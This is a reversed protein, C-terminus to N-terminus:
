RPVGRRRRFIGWTDWPGIPRRRGPVRRDSSFIWGVDVRPVECPVEGPNRFHGRVPIERALGDEGMRRTDPRGPRIEPPWASPINRRGGHSPKREPRAGPRRARPNRREPGDSPRAWREPCRRERAVTGRDGRRAQIKKESRPSSSFRSASFRLGADRGSWSRGLGVGTPRWRVFSGGERGVLRADSWVGVLRTWRRVPM